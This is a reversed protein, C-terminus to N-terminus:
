YRCGAPPQTETTEKRLDQLTSAREIVRDRGTERQTERNNDRETETERDREVAIEM